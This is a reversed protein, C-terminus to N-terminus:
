EETRYNYRRIYWSLPDFFGRGMTLVPTGVLKETWNGRNDYRYSFVVEGWTM